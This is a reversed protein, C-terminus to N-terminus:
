FPSKKMGIKWGIFTTAFHIVCWLTVAWVYVTWNFLVFPLAFIAAGIIFDIQDFPTWAMGSPIGKQRKFFSEVADGVLAGFGLLLGLPVILAPVYMWTQMYAALESVAAVLWVQLAYVVVGSAGGALLGRWTKNDGLLRKGRWSRGGDIPANMDRFWPARSIFMPAMNAIGAPLFFWWATLLDYIM